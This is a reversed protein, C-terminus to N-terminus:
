RNLFSLNRNICDSIRKLEKSPIDHTMEGASRGFGTAIDAVEEIIHNMRNPKIDANGAAKLLASRTIDTGFGDVSTQHQGGPGNSFTLDFAPSVVWDDNKNLIFAFNKVHDDRNHMLVNFVM